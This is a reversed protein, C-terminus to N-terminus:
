ANAEKLSSFMLTAQLFIGVTSGEVKLLLNGQLNSSRTPLETGAVRFGLHDKIALETPQPSWESPLFPPLHNSEHMSAYSHTHTHTHTHTSFVARRGRVEWQFSCYLYKKSKRSCFVDKSGQCLSQQISQLPLPLVLSLIHPRWSLCPYSGLHGHYITEVDSGQYARDRTYQETKWQADLRPKCPVLVERTVDWKMGMGRAPHTCARSSWQKWSQLGMPHLGGPEEAWPIRWALISSHTTM